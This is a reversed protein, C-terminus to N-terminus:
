CLTLLVFSGTAEVLICHLEWWYLMELQAFFLAGYCVGDEAVGV